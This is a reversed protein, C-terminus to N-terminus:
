PELRGYGKDSKGGKGAAKVHENERVCRGSTALARMAWGHVTEHLGAGDERRRLLDNDLPDFCARVGALAGGQRTKDRGVSVGARCDPARAITLM